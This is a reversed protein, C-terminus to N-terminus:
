ARLTESPNRGYTQRYLASFRGPHGFGWEMAVAQVSTTEPDARLLQRHAHDLRVRRLYEIPSMELHRRFVYQLARPTVHAAAAIDSLAIDTHANADIFTAARRLLDPTASRREAATPELAANTPFTNVVVAALHNAATSAILSSSRLQDTHLISRLYDIVGSLQRTGEESLPRHGLLRVSDSGPRPTAVRDLLRPDFLTLNYSPRVARGSFPRDPPTLLTIDGPKIADQEGGFLTEEIHGSHVRCLCIRGLPEATYSMEFGIEIADLSIDGLSRRSIRTSDVESDAGISLKTYTRTFFDETEALDYSVFDFDDTTPTLTPTPM